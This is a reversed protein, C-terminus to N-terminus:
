SNLRYAEIRGKTIPTRTAQELDKMFAALLHKCDRGSDAEKALFRAARALRKISTPEAM